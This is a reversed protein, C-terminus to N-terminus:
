QRKFAPKNGYTLFRWVWEVPGYNYYRMWIHSFLLLFCWIGLIYLVQESRAVTGIKGLGHGYFIFGCIITTLLYNTFAMRGTDALYRLRFAKVALMVIAIYGIAVLLSGNYNWLSGFFMSYTMSWGAAFNVNVGHIILTYGIALSPIAVIIYSKFKLVASLFGLKYLAMGVLMMALIRWGLLILFVFTQMTFTEPIRWVLQKAIGGRLAAIESEVAAPEPAWTKYLNDLAEAPWMPLTSGFLWYNFSPVMFIIIGLSILVWPALRRFLFAIAGCIAYSVLIDGHWLVYGHILGITFLWFLRKYFFRSPRYGKEEISNSFLIIGAGFLISFISIFKQDALVHSWVWVTKNIGTLDGYAAPNLYAASIMSFNQINMILIGLVAVGRLIDLSAIRTTEPLLSTKYM